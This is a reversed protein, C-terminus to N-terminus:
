DAKEVQVLCSNCAFAGGASAEDRTLVNVCGGTDVGKRDPQFWVGADISAVGPMILGTVKAKVILQGRENYVRVKDGHNIGRSKADAPNLWIDDDAMAKLRPINYLSSNVRMRAHPSVLQLPYKERLPDTHGEWAEIYKPIPPILPHNMGAIKRSYIEIKGSPTPFPNHAPDAIQERFAVWPQELKIRHVGDRKFTDYDPLSPTAAAFERLWEEDTKTNFDPMGLRAALETFIALDSKTNPVPDIVKNMYIFYSGGLWPQAIDEQELVTTVPLIIDAYCATPTLFREHAVIFDPKKLAEVGKNINLLQSMMNCGVIYLLKFDAPYGGSKGKLLADFVRTINITHFNDEPVPLTKGLYGQPVRGTGGAAYGGTIGINGTMAALTSAARHYQEGFATRGPAWSAYLIAPKTTAYERALQAITVAPVGTIAEAWAPTKPIGDEKGLVYDRFPEFGITYTEIFRHDYLDEAIMVYAMAILMATDTGPRIPIWQDALAKASITYRPDVSIFRTGKKKAEALYYGTETGFRTVIPNWGWMIILKSHLFNDRSTGNYDTGFTALGSFVAAENSASGWWTTCGGFMSFFRRPAKKAGHLPSVSGFHDMLFIAAPGYRDKVRKLETAITDLAEDWSIIKFKGSGREGMRRLPQKLRDEAYVVDKQAQGRPCAKLPPKHAEDTDIRTIRGNEVHVKLLCRGGCDYYCSTTVVKHKSSSM